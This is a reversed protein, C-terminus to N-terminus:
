HDERYAGQGRCRKRGLAANVFIQNGRGIAQIGLALIRHNCVALDIRQQVIIRIRCHETGTGSHVM